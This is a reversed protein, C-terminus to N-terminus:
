MQRFTNRRREVEEKNESLLRRRLNLLTATDRRRLISVTLLKKTDRLRERKAFTISLRGGNRTYLDDSNIYKAMWSSDKDKLDCGPKDRIDSHPEVLALNELQSFKQLVLFATENYYEFPIALSKVKRISEGLFSFGIHLDMKWTHELFITDCSWNILTYATTKPARFAKSAKLDASNDEYLGTYSKLDVRARKYVRDYSRLVFDRAEKCVQVLLVPLAYSQFEWWESRGNWHFVPVVTITRPQLALGWIELRLELPLNSFLQFTQPRQYISRLYYRSNRLSSRPTARPSIDNRSSSRTKCSIRPKRAVSRPKLRRASPM